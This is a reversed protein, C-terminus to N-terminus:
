LVGGKSYKTCLLRRLLGEWQGWVKEAHYKEAMSSAAEGCARRLTRDDM